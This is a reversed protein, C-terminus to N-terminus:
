RTSGAHSARAARDGRLEDPALVMALFVTAALFLIQRM